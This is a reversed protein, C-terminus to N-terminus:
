VGTSFTFLSILGTFLSGSGDAGGGGGGAAATTSSGFTPTNSRKLFVNEQFRSSGIQNPDPRNIQRLRQKQTRESNIPFFSM